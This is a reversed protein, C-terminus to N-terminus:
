WKRLMKMKEHVSEDVYKSIDKNINFVEKVM